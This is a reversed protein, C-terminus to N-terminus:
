STRDRLVQIVSEEHIAEMVADELRGAAKHTIGQETLEKHLAESFESSIRIPTVHLLEIELTGDPQKEVLRADRISIRLVEM